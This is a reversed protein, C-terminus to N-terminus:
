AFIARYTADAKPSRTRLFIAAEVAFQTLILTVIFMGYFEASFPEPRRLARLLIQLIGIQVIYSLLSYQGLNLIRRHLWTNGQFRAGLATFAAVACCAGLIQQLLTQRFIQSIVIYAAFSGLCLLWHRRLKQINAASVRGLLVGVLGASMLGGIPFLAGNRELIVGASVAVVGGLTLVLRHRREIFLLVPAIALLYAIPLLVEFASAQGNGEVYIDIWHTAFFRLGLPQGNYNRGALSALLNLVTFLLVLKAGRTLLRYSTARDQSAPRGFYVCSILFGTILIFSPPLFSMYRFALEYRTCYNLSHYVVMCLVLVGKAFDIGELRLGTTDGSHLDKTM